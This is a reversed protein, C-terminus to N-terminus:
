SAPQLVMIDPAGGMTLAVTPAVITSYAGVGATVNAGVAYATPTNYFFGGDYIVGNQAAITGTGTVTLSIQAQRPRGALFLNEPATTFVSTPYFGGFTTLLASTTGMLTGTATVTATIVRQAFVPSVTANTGVGNVTLTLSGPTLSAGMNTCLVGTISGGGTTGFTVTGLTIGTSINPDFPSPVLTITFGSPYGAGPNTLTFGSVTGNAITSYGSAQIGGVGNPNSGPPPPAPILAIPPVGYGAGNGSALIGAAVQGGVIPAWTSGGGGTVSISTSAQAYTTGGANTVVAAIPCALPNAVRTNYGDSLVWILGGQWAGSCLISWTNTLPDLYQLLLYNGLGVYWEGAPVVFTDGSNLTVRSGSTDQNALGTGTALTLPAPQASPYLNQPLPLGLGPGSIHQTM